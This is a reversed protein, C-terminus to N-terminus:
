TKQSSIKVGLCNQFFVSIDVGQPLGHFFYSNGRATGTGPSSKRVLFSIISRWLPACLGSFSRSFKAVGAKEGIFACDVGKKSGSSSATLIFSNEGSYRVRKSVSVCTSNRLYDLVPKFRMVNM